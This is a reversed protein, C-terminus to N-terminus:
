KQGFLTNYTNESGYRCFSLMMIFIAFWKYEGIGINMTFGIFFPLIWIYDKMRQKGFRGFILRMFGLYAVFGYLGIVYIHGIESSFGEQGSGILLVLPSMRGIAVVLDDWRGGTINKDTQYTSIRDQFKTMLPEIVNSIVNTQYLFIIALIAVLAVIILYEIKIRMRLTSSTIIKSILLLTNAIIFSITGGTSSSALIIFATCFITIIKRRKLLNSKMLLYVEIGAVAYAVNNPDTWLFNYRYAVIGLLFRRTHNDAHNIALKITGYQIPFLYFFVSLVFVYLIFFYLLKSMNFDQKQFSHKFYILLSLSLTYQILRKIATSFSTEFEVDGIHLLNVVTSACMLLVTTFFFIGEKGGTLKKSNFVDWLLIIPVSYSISVLSFYPLFLIDIVVFLLVKNAKKSNYLEVMYQEMTKDLTYVM